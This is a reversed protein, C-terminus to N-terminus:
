VGAYSNNPTKYHIFKRKLILIYLRALGCDNFVKGKSNNFLVLHIYKLRPSHILYAWQM